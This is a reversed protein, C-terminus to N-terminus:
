FTARLAPADCLILTNTYALFATFHRPSHPSPHYSDAHPPHFPSSLPSYASPRPLTRTAPIGLMLPRHVVPLGARPAEM